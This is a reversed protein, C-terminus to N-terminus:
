QTAKLGHRAAIMADALGRLAADNLDSIHQPVRLLAEAMQANKPDALNSAIGVVLGACETPNLARVTRAFEIDFAWVWPEGPKYPKVGARKRLEALSMTDQTM